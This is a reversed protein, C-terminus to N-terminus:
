YFDKENKEEIFSEGLRIIDDYFLEEPLNYKTELINKVNEDAFDAKVFDYGEPSGPTWYTGKEGPDYEYSVEIEIEDGIDKVLREFTEEDLAMIAEFEDFYAKFTDEYYGNSEFLAMISEKIIKRLKQENLKITQKM